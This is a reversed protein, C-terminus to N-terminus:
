KIGRLLEETQARRRKPVQRPLRESLPVQEAIQAERIARNLQRGSAYAQQEEPTLRGPPNQMMKELARRRLVQQREDEKQGLRKVAQVQGLQPPRFGGLSLLAQGPSVPAIAEGTAPAHYMGTKLEKAVDKARNIVVPTVGRQARRVDRPDGTKAAKVIKAIDGVAPALLDTPSASQPVMANFPSLNDSVDFGIAGLIGRALLPSKAKLNLMWDMDQVFPLGGAGVTAVVKATFAAKEKATLGMFFEIEKIPYHKFQLLGRVLDPRMFAPVHAPTMWMHNRDVMEQAFEFAKEYNGTKDYIKHFAGLGTVGRIAKESKKMFWLPDIKGQKAFSAYTDFLVDGGYGETVGLESLVRKNLANTEGDATLKLTHRLGNLTDKTGLTTSTNWLIEFMNTIPSLINGGLKSFAEYKTVANLAEHVVPKGFITTYEKVVDDLRQRPNNMYSIFNEMAEALHKKGGPIQGMTEYAVKNFKDLWVKRNWQQVYQPFWVLPDKEFTDLGQTRQQLSGFFRGGRKKIAELTQKTVEAEGAGMDERLMTVYRKRMQRPLLALYRDPIQIPNTIFVKANPNAKLYNEAFALAEKETSVRTLTREGNKGFREVLRLSGQWMSPVHTLVDKTSHGLAQMEAGISEIMPRISAYMEFKPGTIGRAALERTNFRVGAAEEAKLVDMVQIREKKNLLSGFQQRWGGMAENLRPFVNTWLQRALAYIPRVEPHLRVIEPISQGYIAAAGLDTEGRLIQIGADGMTIKSEGPKPQLMEDPLLDGVGPERDTEAIAKEIKEAMRSPGPPRASMEQATREAIDERIGYTNLTQKMEVPNLKFPTQGEPYLRHAGKFGADKAALDGVLRTAFEDPTAGADYGQRLMRAHMAEISEGDARAIASFGSTGTAPPLSKSKALSIGGAEQVAESLSKAPQPAGPIVIPPGTYEPRGGPLMRRRFTEISESLEFPLAVGEPRAQLGPPVGEAVAGQRAALAEPEGQIRGKAPIPFEPMPTTKAGKALAGEIPGAERLIPYLVRSHAAREAFVTAENPSFGREQLFTRIGDTTEFYRSEVAKVARGQATREAMKAASEAPVGKGQLFNYIEDAKELNKAETELLTPARRIAKAEQLGKTAGFATAGAVGIGAGVGFGKAGAKLTSEPTSGPQALEQLASGLGMQLGFTAGERPAASQVAPVGYRGLAEGTRIAVRGAAEPLVKATARAAAGFPKTVAGVAAPVRLFRAVPGLIAYQALFAPLTAAEQALRGPSEQLTESIAEKFPSYKEPALGTKATYMPPEPIIREEPPSIFEGAARAPATGFGLAEINRGVLEKGFAKAKQGFTPEGIEAISKLLDAETLKQSVQPQSEGPTPTDTPQPEADPGPVEAIAKLLDAENM